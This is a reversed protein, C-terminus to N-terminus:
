SPVAGTAALTSHEGLSLLAMGSGSLTSDFVSKHGDRGDSDGPATALSRRRPSRILRRRGQDQALTVDWRAQSRCSANPGEM